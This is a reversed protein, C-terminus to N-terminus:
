QYEKLPEDKWKHRLYKKGDKLLIDHQNWEGIVKYKDKSSGISINTNTNTIEKTTREPHNLPPQM